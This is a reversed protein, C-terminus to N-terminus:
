ETDELAVLLAEVAWVDLEGIIPYDFSAQMIARNIQDNDFRQQLTM